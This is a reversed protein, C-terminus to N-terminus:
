WFGAQRGIAQKFCDAKSRDGWGSVVGTDAYPPSFAVVDVAGSIIDALKRSDGKFIQWQGKPKFVKLGELNRKALDFFKQEYEVGVTNRGLLVAEVLTTGIGMMVDAVTEGEKTYEKLIWQALAPSMKAPHLMSDKCYVRHLRQSSISPMQIVREKM